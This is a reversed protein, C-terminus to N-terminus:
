AARRRAALLLSALVAAGQAVAGPEPVSIAVNDIIPQDVGVPDLHLRVFVANTTAPGLDVVYQTDGTTLQALGVSAYGSGNTSVEVGVTSTGNFTKGGFSFLWNGSQPTGADARFVMSVPEQATMSLYNFAGQGEDLLVTFADFYVDGIQQSPADLNADLSGATPFMAENGSGDASVATSGFQGNIYMTGFLASEAGAGFTPDLNSYNAPLTTTFTAGDISLLGDGVYQSFDWGAIMTEDQAAAPTAVLAATLISATALGRANMM